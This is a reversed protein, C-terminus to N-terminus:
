KEKNKAKWATAYAISKEKATLGDKSYGKKIHKVMREFKAGPPAKEELNDTALRKMREKHWSMDVQEEKMARKIGIVANKQQRGTLPKRPRDPGYKMSGLQSGRKAVYSRLTDKSLEDIQEEELKSFHKAVYAPKGVRLPSHGGWKNQTSKGGQHTKVISSHTSYDRREYRDGSEHGKVAGVKYLPKKETEEPLHGRPKDFKSMTKRFKIESKKSEVDQKHVKGSKTKRMDSSSKARSLYDTGHSEGKRTLHGTDQAGAREAHKVTKEGWKKRILGRLKTTPRDEAEKGRYASIAAGKSVEDLQDASLKKDKRRMSVEIAQKTSETSEDNLDHMPEKPAVARQIHKMTEADEAVMREVTKLREDLEDGDVIKAEVYYMSGVLHYHFFLFYKAPVSKVFEGQDNMGMKDGFQQVEWVEIGHDGQMYVRKPLHIAFYALAKRVKNLTGYPTICPKSVMGSLVANIEDRVIDRSIDIGGTYLSDLKVEEKLHERFTKM